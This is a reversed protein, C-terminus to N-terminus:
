SMNRRPRQRDSEPAFRVRSLDDAGSCKHTRARVLLAKDIHFVILESNLSRRDNAWCAAFLADASKYPALSHTLRAIM